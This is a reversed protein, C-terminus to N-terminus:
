PTVKQFPLCGGERSGRSQLVLDQGFGLVKRDKHTGNDELQGLAKSVVAKRIGHRAWM